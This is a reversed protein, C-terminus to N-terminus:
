VLSKSIMEVAEKMGLPIAGYQLVKEIGTFDKGTAYANDTMVFMLKGIQHCFKAIDLTMEADGRVEGIIVAQSLGAVLRNRQMDREKSFDVAPAYESILGGIKTLEMSLLINEEPYIHDFGAPLVAYSQGGAKMAGLHAAAGIGRALDSVIAVNAKALAGALDVALAIGEISADQMGVIAARKQDNSPLNGKHFILPPPDNLELFLEPYHTELVTTSHIDRINMADIFVEAEELSRDARGIKEAQQWNLGEITSLENTEARLITDVDGFRAILARFARPGVGGFEMLAWVKATTTYKDLDIM